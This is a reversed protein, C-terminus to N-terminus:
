NYVYKLVGKAFSITDIITLYSGGGGAEMNESLKNIGM